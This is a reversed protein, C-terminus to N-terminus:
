TILFSLFFSHTYKYTEYIIVVYCNSVRNTKPIKKIKIWSKLAPDQFSHLYDIM